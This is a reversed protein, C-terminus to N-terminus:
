AEKMFSTDINGKFLSSVRGFLHEFKMPQNPDSLTIYAVPEIFSLQEKYTRFLESYLYLSRASGWLVQIFNVEVSETIGSKKENIKDLRRKSLFNFLADPNNEVKEDILHINHVEVLTAKNHQNLLEFDVSKGNGLPVEVDKLTFMKSSLLKHLVSLEGVFNLYKHDPASLVNHLTKKIKAKGKADLSSNLKILVQNFYDLLWTGEGDAKKASIIIDYINAEVLQGEKGDNYRQERLNSYLKDYADWNLGNEGCLQILAPVYLTLNMRTANM